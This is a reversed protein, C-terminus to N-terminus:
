AEISLFFQLDWAKRVLDEVIELIRKKAGEVCDKAGKITVRESKSGNRPFSVTVGGYEDAIERLVQGRRAVFHRHYKPDVNIEAEM